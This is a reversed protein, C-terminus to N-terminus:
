QDDDTGKPGQAQHRMVGVGSADLVAECCAFVDEYDYANLVRHEGTAKTIAAEILKERSPAESAIVGDTSPSLRGPEGLGQNDKRVQRQDNQSPPVGDAPDRFIRFGGPTDPGCCVLRPEGDWTKAYRAYGIHRYRPAQITPVGANREALLRRNEELVADAAEILNAAALLARRMNDIDIQGVKPRNALARLTEPTWIRTEAM